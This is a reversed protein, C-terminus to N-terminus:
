HLLFAVLKAGVGCGISFSGVPTDAALSQTTNAESIIIIFFLFFCALCCFRQQFLVLSSGPAVSKRPELVGDNSMCLPTFCMRM